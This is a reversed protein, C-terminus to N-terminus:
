DVMMNPIFDIIPFKTTCQPCELGGNKVAFGTLAAYCAVMSRDLDNSTDIEEVTAPLVVAAMAPCKARVANVATVLDGYDVRPLMRRVFDPDYESDTPLVEAADIRLPFSSCKPCAMLNHTLLRM